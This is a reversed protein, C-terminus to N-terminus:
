GEQRERISEYEFDIRIQTGESDPLEVTTKLQKAMLKILTVGFGESKGHFVGKPLGRGNDTYELSVHKNEGTICRKLCSRKKM